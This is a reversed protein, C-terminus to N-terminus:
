DAISSAAPASGAGHDTDSDVGQRRNRACRVTRRFESRMVLGAYQETWGGPALGVGIVGASGFTIAVGGGSIALRGAPIIMWETGHACHTTDGIARSCM